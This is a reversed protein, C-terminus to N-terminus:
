QHTERPCARRSQEVPGLTGVYERFCYYRVGPFPVWYCWSENSNSYGKTLLVDKRADDMTNPKATDSLPGPESKLVHMWQHSEVTAM